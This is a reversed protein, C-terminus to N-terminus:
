TLTRGKWCNMRMDSDITLPFSLSKVLFRDANLDSILDTITIIDGASIIDIPLVTMDTTEVLSISLQLEYEARQTALPTSSILDDEIVKTKTGILAIRTPSSVNTDSAEGRVISGNINDGVVVVKNYVKSFEYRHQNGLYSVENTAFDWKSGTTEINSRPEFRLYGNEDFYTTYSVIKALEILIDGYTNGAPKTITYPTLETTAEIIPPKTIGADSLLQVVADGINTSVPIVYTTELAGGLVGNLLNFKDLFQISTIATGDHSTGIEPESCL